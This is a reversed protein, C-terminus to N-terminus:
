TNKKNLNVLNLGAILWFIVSNYNNFFSGSTKLPWILLIFSILFGIYLYQINKSKENKIKTFAIQFIKSIIIIYIILGFVGTETIIELFYNHPHSSCRIKQNKLKLNPLNYKENGCVNRYQKIGTGFFFEKKIIEFSTLWIVGYHSDFFTDNSYKNSLGLQILNQKIHRKYFNEEKIIFVTLILSFITVSLLIIKRVEGAFVFVLFVSFFTLILAMREGTLFVAVVYLCLIIILYENRIKKKKLFYVTSMFYIGSFKALFGGAILEDGFFGSLRFKHPSVNGVLDFGFLYQFFLDFQLLLLILILIILFKEIKKINIFFLEIILVFFLFRIFFITKSFLTQYNENILNSFIMIFFFIIFYISIKHDLINKFYKNIRFLFFIGVLSILADSLFKSFVLTLPLLFLLQNLYLKKQM